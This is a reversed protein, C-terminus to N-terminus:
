PLSHSRTLSHTRAYGGTNTRTHAHTTKVQAERTRAPSALSLRMNFRATVGAKILFDGGVGEEREMIREQARM